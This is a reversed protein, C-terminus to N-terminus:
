RVSILCVFVSSRKKKKVKSCYGSFLKCINGTADMTVHVRKYRKPCKLSSCMIEERSTNRSVIHTYNILGKERGREMNALEECFVSVEEEILGSKDTM